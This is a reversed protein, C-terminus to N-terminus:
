RTPVHVAYTDEQDLASLLPEMLTIAEELLFSLPIAGDEVGWRNIATFVAAVLAAAGLNLQYDDPSRGTREAFVRTFLEVTKREQAASGAALAPVSAMLRLRAFNQNQAAEAEAVLLPAIARVIDALAEDAPRASLIAEFLGDYNILVVEEKTPFYRYFTTTSTEVADAIQEVTTEEYGQAEFLRLAEARITRRLKIKKRERLGLPVDTPTNV